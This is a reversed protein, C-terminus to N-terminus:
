DNTLIAFIKAVLLLQKILQLPPSKISFSCDRKITLLYLQTNDRTADMLFKIEYGYFM